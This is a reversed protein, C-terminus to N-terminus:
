PARRLAGPSRGQGGPLGSPTGWRAVTPSVTIMGVSRGGWQLAVASHLAALRFSWSWSRKAIPWRSWGRPGALLGCRDADFWALSSMSSREGASAAAQGAISVHDSAIRIATQNWGALVSGRPILAHDVYRRVFANGISGDPLTCPVLWAATRLRGPGPWGFLRWSRFEAVACLLWAGGGTILPPLGPVLAAAREEAIRWVLFHDDGIRAAIV